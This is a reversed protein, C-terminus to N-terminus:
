TMVWKVRAPMTPQFTMMVLSVIGHLGHELLDLNEVLTALM